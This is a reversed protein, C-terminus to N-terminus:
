AILAKLKNYLDSNSIPAAGDIFDVIFCGTTATYALNWPPSGESLVTVMTDSEELSMFFITKNKQYTRKKPIGSGSYIGFDVEISNETSTIVINAM